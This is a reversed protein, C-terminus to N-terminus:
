KTRWNKRVADRVTSASLDLQRGIHAFTEGATHRAKIDQVKASTLVAKGHREGRATRGRADRELLNTQQTGEHLHEPRVCQLNDCAHLACPTSYHGHALLYAVRAAM